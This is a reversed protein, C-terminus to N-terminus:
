STRFPLAASLEIAKLHTAKISSLKTLLTAHQKEEEKTQKTKEQELLSSLHLEDIYMRLEDILDPCRFIDWSAIM